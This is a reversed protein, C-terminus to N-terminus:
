SAWNKKFSSDFHFKFFFTDPIFGERRRMRTLVCVTPKAYNISENLICISNKKLYILPNLLNRLCQKPTRLPQSLLAMSFDCPPECCWPETVQNSQCASPSKSKGWEKDQCCSSGAGVRYKIIYQNIWKCLSSTWETGSFWRCGYYVCKVM